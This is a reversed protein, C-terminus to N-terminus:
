KNQKSENNEIWKMENLLRFKGGCDCIEVKDFRKLKGCKTCVQTTNNNFKRIALYFLIGGISMFPLLEPIMRLIEQWTMTPGLSAGRYALTGVFKNQIVEFILILSFVLIGTLKADKERQKLDFKLEEDTKPVWM